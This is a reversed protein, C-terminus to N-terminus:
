TESCSIPAKGARPGFRRGPKLKRKGSKCEIAVTIGAKAIFLDPGDKTNVPLVSWGAKRLYEVISAESLDRHLSVRRM